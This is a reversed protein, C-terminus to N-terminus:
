SILQLSRPAHRAYAIFAVFLTDIRHSLQKSLQALILTEITSELSANKRHNVPGAYQLAEAFTTFGGINM